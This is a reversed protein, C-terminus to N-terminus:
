AEQKKSKLERIRDIAIHIADSFQLYGTCRCLHGSLETRIQEDTPNDYKDLLAKASLIVGPICFGCQVAGAQVFSQQVFTLDEDYSVGEVTVVTKGNVKASPVTCSNVPRGNLLVTCAGCESEECGIKTGTLFLRERLTRLLTEEPEVSVTTERGNLTFTISQM